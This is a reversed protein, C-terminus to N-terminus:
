TDSVSEAVFNQVNTRPIRTFFGRIDYRSCYTAGQDDATCVLALAHRTGRGPIGGISTPTRMVQKIARVKSVLVDLIARQVIRNAVPAIVLPRFKGKTKTEITLGRQKEFQFTGKGLSRQIQRLNVFEDEGFKAIDNRTDKSISARGNVAVKRWAVHLVDLRKVSKYPSGMHGQSTCEPGM